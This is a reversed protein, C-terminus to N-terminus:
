VSVADQVLQTDASLRAVLDGSRRLDFFAAEQLILNRFLRKRLDAVVKLGIINFLYSRCYFFLSQAAFVAVLAAGAAGPNQLLWSNGESSLSYRALQPLALNVASGGFLSLLALLLWPLHPRTLSLLRLISDLSPKNPRM